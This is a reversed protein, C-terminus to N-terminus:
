TPLHLSRFHRVAWWMEESRWVIEEGRVLMGMCDGIHAIKVVPVPSAPPELKVEPDDISEPPTSNSEPTSPADEDPTVHDLVAVLATSSGTHLPTSGNHQVHASLTREYARELIQLVDIGDSLEALHSELESETDQTSLPLSLESSTYHMLRRAFLASPSPSYTSPSNRAWGGVGDAVGLANDRIFYADEGVSVALSSDDSHFSRSHKPIGYAGVDLQYRIQIRKHPLSSTTSTTPNPSASVSSPSQYPLSSTFLQPYDQDTHPSPTLALPNPHSQHKPEAPIRAPLRSHSPPPPPSDFFSLPLNPSSVTYYSASPRPRAPVSPPSLVSCLRKHIGAKMTTRSSVAKM